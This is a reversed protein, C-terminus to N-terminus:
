ASLSSASGLTQFPNLSSLYWTCDPLLTFLKYVLTLFVIQCLRPFPRPKFVAPILCLHFENPCDYVLFPLLVLKMCSQVCLVFYFPFYLIFYLDQCRFNFTGQEEFDIWGDM